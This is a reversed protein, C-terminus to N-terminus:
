CFLVEDLGLKVRVINGILLDSLQIYDHYEDENMRQHLLSDSKKNIIHRTEFRNNSMNYLWLIDRKKFAEQIDSSLLKFSDKRNDPIPLLFNAIELAKGILLYKTDLANRKSLTHFRILMRTLQDLKSYNQYAIALEELPYQPVTINSYIGDISIIDMGAIQNSHEKKELEYHVRRYDCEWGAIQDFVELTTNWGYFDKDNVTIPFGVIYTMLDDFRKAIRKFKVMSEELENISEVNEKMIISYDGYDNHLSIKFDETIHINGFTVEAKKTKDLIRLHIPSSKIIFDM